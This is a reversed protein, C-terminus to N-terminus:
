LWQKTMLLNAQLNGGPSGEFATASKMTAPPSQHAPVVVGSSTTTTTNSSASSANSGSTLMTEDTVFQYSDLRCRGHTKGVNRSGGAGSYMGGKGAVPTSVGIGGGRRRFRRCCVITVLLVVVVSLVGAVAAAVTTALRSCHITDACFEELPVGNWETPTRCRFTRSNNQLQLHLRRRHLREQRAASDFEDDDGSRADDGSDTTTPFLHRCLPELACGCDLPNDALDVVTAPESDSAAGAPPLGALFPDFTSLRNRSLDVRRLRRMGTLADDPVTRIRNGALDLTRLNAGGQLLASPWSMLGVDNLRLTELHPLSGIGGIAATAAGSPTTASPSFPSTEVFRGLPNWGVDLFRLRRMRGLTSALPLRSLSNREIRLEVLSTELGDFADDSINAIFNDNVILVRVGGVAQQQHQQGASAAASLSTWGHNVLTTLRNYSLDIVDITAHRFAGTTVDSISNGSLNLRNITMLGGSRTTMLLDDPIREVVNHSVDLSRLRPLRRVFSLDAVRNWAASLTELSELGGDDIRFSRIRNYGVDVSHLNFLGLLPEADFDGTLSNHSLDLIRLEHLGEFTSADLRELCNFSLDLYELRALGGGFGDISSIENHGLDLRRLASLFFFTRKGVSRIRNHSLELRTLNTASQLQRVLTLTDTVNGHSLRIVDLAAQHRINTLAAELQDQPLRPNGDLNLTVLRPVPRFASSRVHRVNCYSLNIHRPTIEDWWQM